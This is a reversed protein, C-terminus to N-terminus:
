DNMQEEHSSEDDRERRLGLRDYRFAETGLEFRLGHASAAVATVVADAAISRALHAPIRLQRLRQGFPSAHGPELLALRDEEGLRTAARIADPPASRLDRFLDTSWDLLVQQANGREAGIRGRTRIWHKEMRKDGRALSDLIEPHTAQEVLERNEKPVVLRQRTELLHWTAELILLNAYVTGIGHPGRAEGDKGVYPALDREEPVLVEVVPHYFGDPRHRQHRHLRGVRQLLVDMPCLDTLMRDADIDLSQQVTQTAIAVVGSGSPRDGFATELAADLAKRDEAAFRSHHPAPVDACRFALDARGRQELEAELARQTAICDKVTNRIVLVRAGRIAAGAACKAIQAPEGAISRLDVTVDKQTDTMQVVVHQAHLEGRTAHLVAPYPARAAVELSRGGMPAVGGRQAFRELAASGLTASMLLAHGGADLHRHLVEELLENMYADSAHVEDVVLLHRLLAAGRLHAHSTHLSSLLVQDITGVAVSAALYRKPSEAAWGRHRWREQDDPWRTEFPALRYGETDDVTLYGPVALVVPPHEPGLAAEIARHVRRQLQVAASRTPLAFYMGDVVGAQLLSLFRLVAAETKGSGTDSELVTLSGSRPVPLRLVEEQLPRPAPHSPYAVGFLDKCGALRSRSSPRVAGMENLLYRARDRAFPIRPGDGPERYPFADRDSGLWDALMVLGTFAHIFRSDNPLLPGEHCEPFWSKAADVLSALGSIPDRHPTATWLDTRPRGSVHVPRGHHSVAGLWLATASEGWTELENIPRSLQDAVVSDSCMTDILERVHGATDTAHLDAKRQFGHNLKGLDHLAALVSLRGITPAPLQAVGGLHALRRGLLTHALLAETCAAVDACHDELPHWTAVLGEGDRSLKGWFNTIPPNM